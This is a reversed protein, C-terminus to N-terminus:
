DGFIKWMKKLIKELKADSVGLFPLFTFFMALKHFINRTKAFIPAKVM